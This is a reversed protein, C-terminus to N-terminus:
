DEAYELEDLINLLYRDKFYGESYYMFIKHLKCFGIIILGLMIMAIM